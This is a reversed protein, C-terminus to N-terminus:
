VSRAVDAAIVVILMSTSFALSAYALRLGRTATSWRMFANRDPKKFVSIPEHPPMQSGKQAQSGQTEWPKNKFAQRHRDEPTSGAANRNFVPAFGRSEAALTFL